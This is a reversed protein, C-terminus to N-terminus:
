QLNRLQIVAKYCLLPLAPTLNLGSCSCHAPWVQAMNSKVGCHSCTCLTCTGLPELLTERTGDYCGRCAPPLSPRVETWLAEPRPSPQAAWSSVGGTCRWLVTQYSSCALSQGKLCWGASAKIQCIPLPSPILRTRAETLRPFSTLTLLARKQPALLAPLLSPM